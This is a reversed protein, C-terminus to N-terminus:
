NNAAPANMRLCARVAHILKPPAYPKPLYNIGERLDIHCGVVDPSYGSTYIVALDPNLALLNDALELGSIGRPMVMDTLLLDVAGKRETWKEMAEIGSGAPVVEFGSGRLISHVFEALNLDDEVVLITEPGSRKPRAKRATDTTRVGADRPFFIRFTTGKGLVSEVQIWGQHQQVIGYVTALGLGTGKDVPKTTFFPEFIKAQTAADMGCGNDTVSLCVCAGVKAEPHREVYAKDFEMATTSITLEGGRAMADRANVVLNMLVQDVMTPDAKLPALNSAFNFKLLIEAPLLHQLMKTSANILENLNLSVLQLVQKRSFTLLQRVLDAAKQSALSVQELARKLEPSCNEKLRWLESNGQIITLLNNFDHAVGAALRGVAELKQSQRLHNELNQRETIDHALFLSCPVKHMSLYEIFVLVTRVKGTKTRLHCEVGGVSQHERLLKKIKLHEDPSNWIGLDSATAGIVENQNYGLLNVFSENADQFQESDATQIAIAVPSVRFASSFREESERLAEEAIKRASIDRGIGEVVLSGEATKTSRANVEMIILSGGKSVIPVECQSDGFGDLTQTLWVDFIELKEPVVLERLTITQAQERSYGTIKEGAENLTAFRGKNDLTFVIDNANEFLDRYKKQLELERLFQQQITKTQEKIRRRLLVSWGLAALLFVTTIALSVETFSTMIEAFLINMADSTLLKMALAHPCISLIIFLERLVVQFRLGLSLDVVVTREQGSVVKWIAM